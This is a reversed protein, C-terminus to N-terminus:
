RSMRDNLSILVDEFIFCFTYSSRGNACIKKFELPFILRMDNIILQRELQRNEFYRTSELSPPPSTLTGSATSKQRWSFYALSM